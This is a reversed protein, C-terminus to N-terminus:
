IVGHGARQDHMGLVPVVGRGGLVVGLVRRGFGAHGVDSVELMAAIHGPPRDGEQEIAARARCGHPQMHAGEPRATHDGIVGGVRRRRRVRDDVVVLAQQIRAIQHEDVHGAGAEAPDAALIRVLIEVADILVDVGERREDLLEQAFVIAPIRGFVDEAFAVARHAGRAERQRQLLMVDIQVADDQEGVNQVPVQQRVIRLQIGRDVLRVDDRQRGIRRRRPIMVLNGILRLFQPRKKQLDLMERGRGIRLRKQAAGSQVPLLALGDRRLQM